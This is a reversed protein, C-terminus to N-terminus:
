ETEAKKKRPARPKKEPMAAAPAPTAAPEAKKRPARPKPTPTAEGADIAKLKATTDRLIAAKAAKKDYEAQTAPGVAATATATAAAEAAAAMAPTAPAPTAAISGEPPTPGKITQATIPKTPTAANKLPDWKEFRDAANKVADLGMSKPSTLNSVDRAVDKVGSDNAAQEMARSFERSMQRLKATFRGIQRFMDPLDQPGIVILAVIGILLMEAWGIDGFM